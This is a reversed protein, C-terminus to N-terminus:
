RCDVLFNLMNEYMAIFEAQKAVDAVRPLTKPKRYEFGLRALLKVTGDRIIM